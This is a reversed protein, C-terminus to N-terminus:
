PQKEYELSLCVAAVILSIVFGYFINIYRSSLLYNFFFDWSYDTQMATLYFATVGIALIGIFREIRLKM